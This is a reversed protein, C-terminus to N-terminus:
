SGDITLFLFIVLIRRIKWIIYRAKHWHVHEWIFFADKSPVCAGRKRLVLLLESSFFTFYTIVKKSFLQAM